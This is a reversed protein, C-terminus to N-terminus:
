VIQIWTRPRAVNLKTVLSASMNISIAKVREPEALRMFLVEADSKQCEDGLYM